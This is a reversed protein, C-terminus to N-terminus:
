AIPRNQISFRVMESMRRLTTPPPPRGVGAAVGGVRRVETARFRKLLVLFGLTEPDTAAVAGAELSVYTTEYDPVVVATCRHQSVLWAVFSQALLVRRTEDFAEKDVHWITM